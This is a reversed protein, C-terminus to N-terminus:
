GSGAEEQGDRRRLMCPICVGADLARECELAGCRRCREREHQCRIACCLLGSGSRIPHSHGQIGAPVELRQRTRGGRRSRPPLAIREVTGWVGAPWGSVGHESGDGGM